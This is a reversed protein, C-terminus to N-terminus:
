SASMSGLLRGCFSELDTWRNHFLRGDLLLYGPSSTSYLDEGCFVAFEQAKIRCLRVKYRQIALTLGLLRGCVSDLDTWRNYLLRGDLLSDGPSCYLDEGCFVAIEQTKIGCLRGTYRQMAPTSGLMRGCDSGPDSTLDHLFRGDLEPIGLTGIFVVRELTLSKRLKAAVSIDKVGNRLWRRAWCDGAIPVLIPATTTSSDAISNQSRWCGVGNLGTVEHIIDRQPHIKYRQIAPM